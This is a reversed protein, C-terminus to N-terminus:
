STAGGRQYSVISNWRPALVSSCVVLGFHVLKTYRHLDQAVTELTDLRLGPTTSLPIHLDLYRARVKQIAAIVVELSVQTAEDALILGIQQLVLGLDYLNDVHEILHTWAKQTFYPYFIQPALLHTERGKEHVHYDFVFRSRYVDEMSNKSNIYGRFRISQLELDAGSQYIFSALSRVTLPTQTTM